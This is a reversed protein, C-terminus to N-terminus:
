GRAPLRRPRPANQRSLTSSSTSTATSCRKAVPSRGLCEFGACGANARPTSCAGGTGCSGHTPALSAASRHARLHRRQRGFPAFRCADGAHRCSGSSRRFRPFPWGTEYRALAPQSASAREALEAQSLAASARAVSRPPPSFPQPNGLTFRLHFSHASARSSQRAALAGM